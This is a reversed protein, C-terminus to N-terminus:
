GASPSRDLAGGPKNKRRRRARVGLAVAVAAVSTLFAVTNGAGVAVACSCGTNNPPTTAADASADTSADPLPPCIAPSWFKQQKAQTACAAACAMAVCSKVSTVQDYKMLPQFTLGEDTSVGLAFPDNFDDAAVYLKGDREALARVSPINDWPGFTKGGDTSRYGISTMLGQTDYTLGAVLITGSALRAFAALRIPVSVPKRFTMGGDESIALSEVLAEQVRLFIKKPDTPDVAIIRFSNQGIDAEISIPPDWTAGGDHSRVISPHVGPTDYMAAYIELPNSRAIEVGTLGGNIAAKFLAPGFTIGGDTSAYIAEPLLDTTNPLAIMLLHQPDTPDAFYDTVLADRATGGAGSWTCSEDDSRIVGSSALAFLRDGPAPGLQYLYAQTAIPMQECSWSWTKGDDASFILGFNTGVIIEDPRDAPLIIGTSDPFAGNALAQRSPGGVVAVVALLVTVRLVVTPEPRPQRAPAAAM